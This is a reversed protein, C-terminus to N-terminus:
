LTATVFGSNSVKIFDHLHTQTKKEAAATRTQVYSQKLAAATAAIFM